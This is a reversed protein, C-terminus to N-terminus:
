RIGRLRELVEYSPEGDDRMGARREWSILADRSEAGFQGDELVRYGARNLLHQLEIVEHHTLERRDVMPPPGDFRDPRRPEEVRRPSDEVRRPLDEAGGNRDDVSALRKVAEKDEESMDSACPFASITCRSFGSVSGSGCREEYCAAVTVDQFREGFQSIVERKWAAIAKERDAGKRYALAGSAEIRKGHCGKPLPPLFKAVAPPPAECLRDAHAASIGFAATMAVAPLLRFWINM